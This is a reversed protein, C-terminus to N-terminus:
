FTRDHSKRLFLLNKRLETRRVIPSKPTGIAMNAISMTSIAMLSVYVCTLRHGDRQRTFTNQSFRTGLKNTLQRITALDQNRTAYDHYRWVNLRKSWHDKVKKEVVGGKLLQGKNWAGKVKFLRYFCIYKSTFKNILSEMNYPSPERGGSIWQRGMLPDDGALFWQNLLDTENTRIDRQSPRLDASVWRAWPSRASPGWCALSTWWGM